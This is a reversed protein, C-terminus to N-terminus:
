TTEHARTKDSHRRRERGCLPPADDEAGDTLGFVRSEGVEQDGGVLGPGAASRQQEHEEGPTVEGVVVPLVAGGREVDAGGPHGEGQLGTAEAQVGVRHGAEVGGAGAGLEADVGPLELGEGGDGNTVAVLGPGEGLRKARALDRATAVGPGAEDEVARKLM